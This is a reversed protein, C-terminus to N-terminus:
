GFDVVLEEGLEYFWDKHISDFLPEWIDVRAFYFLFSWYFGERGEVWSGM